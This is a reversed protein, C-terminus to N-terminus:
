TALTHCLKALDGALWQHRGAIAMVEGGWTVVIRGVDRLVIGASPAGLHFWSGTRSLSDENGFLQYADHGSVTAGTDVNTVILTERIRDLQRIFDGDRDLFVTGYGTGIWEFMTPFGCIDATEFSEDYSLSHREPSTASAHGSVLTALIVPVVLVVRM